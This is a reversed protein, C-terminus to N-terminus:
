CSSPRDVSTLHWDSKFLRYLGSQTHTGWQVTGKPFPFSSHRDRTRKTGNSGIVYMQWVYIVRKSIGISSPECRRSVAVFRDIRAELFDCKPHNRSIWTLSLGWTVCNVWISRWQSRKQSRPTSRQLNFACTSFWCITTPNVESVATWLHQQMEWPVTRGVSDSFRVHPEYPTSEFM